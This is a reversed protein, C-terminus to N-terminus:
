NWKCHWDPFNPQDYRPNIIGLDYLFFARGFMHFLRGRGVEHTFIILREWYQLKNVCTGSINNLLQTGLVVPNALMIINWSSSTLCCIYSEINALYKCILSICYFVFNQSFICIFVEFLILNWIEFWANHTSVLIHRDM